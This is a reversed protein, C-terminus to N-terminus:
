SMLKPPREQASPEFPHVPTAPGVVLNAAGLVFPLSVGAAPLAAVVTCTAACDRACSRASDKEGIHGCCPDGSTLAAHSHSVSAMKGMTTAGSPMPARCAAQAASAAVPSVLLGFIAFIVLLLRM